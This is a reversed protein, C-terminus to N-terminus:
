FLKFPEMDDKPISKGRMPTFNELELLYRAEEWSLGEVNLLIREQGQRTFKPMIVWNLLVAAIICSLLFVGAFILLSRIPKERKRKIGPGKTENILIRIRDSKNGM